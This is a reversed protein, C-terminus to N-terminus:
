AYLRLSPHAGAPGAPVPLVSLVLAGGGGLEKKRVIVTVEWVSITYVINKLLTRAFLEKSMRAIKEFPIRIYQYLVENIDFDKFKQLTRLVNFM